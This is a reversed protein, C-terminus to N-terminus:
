YSRLIGWNQSSSSYYLTFYFINFYQHEKWYCLFDSFSWTLFPTIIFIFGGGWIYSNQKIGHFHPFVLCPFLLVKFSIINRGISFDLHLSSSLKQLLKWYFFFFDIKCWCFIKWFLSGPRILFARRGKRCPLATLIRSISIEQLWLPLLLLVLMLTGCLLLPRCENIQPAILSM